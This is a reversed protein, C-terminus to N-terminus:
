FKIRQPLQVVKSNEKSTNSNEVILVKTGPLLIESHWTGKTVNYLFGKRLWITEPNEPQDKNGGILLACSGELLIFVEDTEFHVSLESIENSHYEPPGNILAVRWTEFDILPKYGAEDHSAIILGNM